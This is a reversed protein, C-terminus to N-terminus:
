VAHFNKQRFRRYYWRIALRALPSGESWEALHTPRTGVVSVGGTAKTERGNRGNHFLQLGKQLEGSIRDRDEKRSPGPIGAARQVSSM